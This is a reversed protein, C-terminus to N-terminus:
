QYNNNCGNCLNDSYFYKSESKEGCKKCTKLEYQQVWNHCAEELTDGEVGHGYGANDMICVGGDETSCFILSSEMDEWYTYEKLWEEFNFKKM